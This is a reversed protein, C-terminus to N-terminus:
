DTGTGYRGDAVAVVSTGHDAVSVMSTGHDAVSSGKQSLRNAFSAANALQRSTAASSKQSSGDSTAHSKKKIVFEFYFAGLAEFVQNVFVIFVNYEVAGVALVTYIIASPAATLVHIFQNKRMKKVAQNLDNKSGKSREVMGNVNRQVKLIVGICRQFQYLYGGLCSYIFVAKLGFGIQALIGEV